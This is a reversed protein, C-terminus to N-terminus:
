AAPIVNSWGCTSRLSQKRSGREGASVWRRLPLECGSAQIQRVPKKLKRGLAQHPIESAEVRLGVRARLSANVNQNIVAPLWSVEGQGQKRSGVWASGWSRWPHCVWRWGKNYPGPKQKSHGARPYTFSMELSVGELAELPYPLNGLNSM